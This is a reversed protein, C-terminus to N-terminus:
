IHHISITDIVGNSVKQLEYIYTGDDVLEGLQLEIGKEEFLNYVLGGLTEFGQSDIDFNYQKNIESVPVSASFVKTSGDFILDSTASGQILFKRVLFLIAIAIVGILLDPMDESVVLMKRSIVLMILHTITTDTHAVMLLVFEMAIVLLLVHSLFQKFLELSVTVDSKLIVVYYKFIDPISFVIGLLLLMSILVEFLIVVKNLKLLFNRRDM